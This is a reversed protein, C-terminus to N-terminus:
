SARVRTVDSQCSHFLPFHHHIHRTKVPREKDSLEPFPPCMGRPTKDWSEGSHHAFPHFIGAAVNFEM